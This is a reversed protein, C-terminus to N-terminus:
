QKEWKEIGGATVEFLEHPAFDPQQIQLAYRASDRGALKQLLHEREYALQGEAVPIKAAVASQTIKALDFRYGRRDAEQWIGFLYADLLGVPDPTARFRVLQPHNRYGSTEGLLVKRALLGERWCATLGKADLYRPHITWLRM